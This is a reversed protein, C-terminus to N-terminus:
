ILEGIIVRNIGLYDKISAINKFGSQFMIEILKESQGEGTEFFIRGKEKLLEKGKEAILRYFKYGDESDTIAIRPEYEVIEKQLNGYDNLAVYPPNSVILDFSHNLENGIGSIDRIITKIRDNLMLTKFNEEAINLAEPSIDIATVEAMPLNVALAAAINGSGTGIDLISVRKSKDISNLIADIMIETEQRPILVSRDVKIEIGYFEVKGLIYQLPEFKSRRVIYKRYLDIENVKLPKDFALYLELRKCKLVGALLLEANLRPSEIGKRSLFDTSLQILELVNPM